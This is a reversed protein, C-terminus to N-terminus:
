FLLFKQVFYMFCYSKLCQINPLLPYHDRPSCFLTVRYNRWGGAKLSHGPKPVLFPVGTPCCSNLNTYVHSSVLQPWPQVSWFIFWQIQCECLVLCLTLEKWQSQLVKYVRLLLYRIWFPRTACYLPIALGLSFLASHLCVLDSWDHRVRQSGMSKVWWTGRDMPNELCSYQLPNGDGEGSSRGSEPNSGPDQM